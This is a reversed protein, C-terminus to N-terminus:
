LDARNIFEEPEDAGSEKMFTPCLWKPDEYFRPPTGCTRNLDLKMATGVYVIAQWSHVCM